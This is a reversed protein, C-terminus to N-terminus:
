SSKFLEGCVIQPAIERAKGGSKYHEDGHIYPSILRFLDEKFQLTKAEGSFIGM